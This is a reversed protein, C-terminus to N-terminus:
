HPHNSRDTCAQLQQWVQEPHLTEFCPPHLDEVPPFPCKKKLCPADPCSGTLHVQHNGVTGTLAPSTPGYLNVTPVGLAAALHGPGTDAAVVGRAKLLIAALGEIDMRPLVRCKEPNVAAIHEARIKEGESGWPIVVSGAKAVMGALERWFRQPWQKTRWTTGHLFVFAGEEAPVADFRGPDIGYDPPTEPLSYGLAEAFLRRLRHVAHPGKPSPHRRNYFLAALPERASHFDPGARVGGAIGTIVASKILGQADLALDHPEQRLQAMFRGIEGRSRPSALDKRWRRWAVPIVEKVVPHWLPIQAFSEEAVWRCELGKVAQRADTLAPLTHLLDGMSSTKILLLRM